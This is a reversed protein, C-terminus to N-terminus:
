VDWGAVGTTGNEDTLELAGDGNIPVDGKLKGRGSLGMGSSWWRCLEDVVDREM